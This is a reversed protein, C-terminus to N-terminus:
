PHQNRLVTLVRGYENLKARGKATTRCGAGSGYASFVRAWKDSWTGPLRNCYSQRRLLLLTTDSCAKTSTADLGTLSLWLERPVASRHIQGSCRSRGGDQSWVPHPGSGSHVIVDFASERWWVALIAAAAQKPPLWEARAATESVAAAVTELRARRQGTTELDRTHWAPPLTLLWALIAAKLTM